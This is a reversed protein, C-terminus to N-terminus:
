RNIVIKKYSRMSENDIILFYVGESFEGMNMEIRNEGSIDINEQQYVTNGYANVVRLNVHEKVVSKLEVVFTGDNPNPYISANFDDELEGVGFSSGVNVVLESSFEGEGCDNMGKVKLTAQGSYSGNWEITCTQDRPLMLNGASPPDLMWEYADCNTAEPITYDFTTSVYTDINTEGQPMDPKGPLQHVTLTITEFGYGMCGNGDIVSDITISITQSPDINMTPVVPKNVTHELTNGGVHIYMTWPSTGTLTIDLGSSEGICIEDTTLTCTATPLEKVFVDLTDSVPGLGAQNMGCVFLKADGQFEPNWQIQVERDYGIVTGAEYPEVQWVYHIAGSIESTEYDAPEGGGCFTDPGLPMDPKQTIPSLGFFDLYKKILDKKSNLTNDVLGNFEFVSGITKYSGQDYAVAADYSPSSNKFISFAPEVPEIRDVYNNDGTFIYNMGDTFTGVQGKILYLDPDGDNLGTINFMPHLPTPDYQQDYYWTDGGEMYLNGGAELYDKLENGEEELLVYNQNYTGLCLFISHYNLLDEPFETKYECAVGWEDMATKMGPGSNVNKDLDLILVPFQGITLEFAGDAHIGYIGWFDTSFAANYGPPSIVSPTVTFALQVTENQGITGQNASDAEVTVFQDAIHIIGYVDYADSSGKNILSVMIDATEGPDLRGNNNGGADSIEVSVYELVPAHAQVTAISTWSTDGDTAEINFVIDHGNPVLGSVEFSLQDEATATTNSPINGFTATTNHLTVLDDDTTIEATVNTADESGVNKLTLSLTVTEGYDLQGNGNGSGDNVEYANQVIYPGSPPIVDVRAHYRFYNQKTIVVDVLAGPLQAPIAVDEPSGTGESIAILEGDVSLAIMAGEDAKINFFDLGALMVSEHYVSLEQPVETYLRTFADGHHHFLNYTVEKNNTNFPWNSEKLFIKGATNGFAPLAGRSPPETQHDPLFDPFMNDFVGWVYTDNVFSYSVESAALLGLAGSPQGNYTYRHFKETFCEGGMDYKGTLCNISFVFCLDENTLGDIDDNDYDPEGWGYEWGHDRHQLIFAGSNIANNVDTATGGTWGGLEGPTAPIYGLGNPGFVNLVTATNTATSWPDVSPNGGYIANIRVPEKGHVHKFYGGVTESCIQFWRETQWGLATIPNNYFGPNIPPNSEYDIAKRVMTELHEENQATMRAFVFEEEDDGDVDAYIHDSVCYDDWTPSMIASQGSGHDAMLLVASPVPDWTNYVENIYTEIAMTTNAGIEGTTVIMTEIGQMTRFKKISDAWQAFVPENPVIILYECGNDRTSNQLRENYDIEPLSAANIFRDSMIPDWFRSRLRDEGFFGTGGEFTVEVKIDRLVKLEKTVPNYQFPTVGLIVADVGRIETKESLRVPEAPFFTNSSYIRQDKNYQLPGKETTKPIRPAPAVNVNRYTETRMDIIRLVPTAGEPVAIYKGRGPLNPAGEDNPLFQGPLAIEKMAEGSIEKDLLTFETVSYNIEVSQPSAQKLNFGPKDWNDDYAYRQAFLTASLFLLVTLFPLVKKM